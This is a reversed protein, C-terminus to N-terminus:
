FRRDFGFDDASNPELTYGSSLEISIEANWFVGEFTSTLTQNKAYKLQEDKPLEQFEGSNDEEWDQAIADFPYFGVQVGGSLIIYGSKDVGEEVDFQGSELLNTLVEKLHIKGCKYLLDKQEYLSMSEFIGYYSNEGVKAFFDRVTFTEADVTTHVTILDSLKLEPEWEDSKDVFATNTVKAKLQYYFRVQENSFCLTSDVADIVEKIAELTIKDKDINEWEFNKPQRENVWLNTEASYWYEAFPTGHLLIGKITIPAM